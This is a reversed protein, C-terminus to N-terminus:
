GSPHRKHNRGCKKGAHLSYAIKANRSLLLRISYYHLDLLKKRPWSSSRGTSDMMEAFHRTMETFKSFMADTSTIAPPAISRVEISQELDEKDANEEEEEGGSSSNPVVSKEAFAKAIALKHQNPSVADDESDSLSVPVPYQFERKGSKHTESVEAASTSSESDSESSSM